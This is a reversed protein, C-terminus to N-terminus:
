SSSSQGIELCSLATTDKKSHLLDSNVAYKVYTHNLVKLRSPLRYYVLSVFQTEHLDFNSVILYVAIRSNYLFYNQMM